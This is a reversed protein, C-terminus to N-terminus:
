PRRTWKQWWRRWFPVKLNGMMVEPIDFARAICRRSRDLEARWKRLDDETVKSPGPDNGYLLIGNMRRGIDALMSDPLHVEIPEPTM